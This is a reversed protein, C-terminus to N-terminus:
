KIAEDAAEDWNLIIQKEETQEFCHRSENTTVKKCNVTETPKVVILGFKLITIFTTWFVGAKTQM